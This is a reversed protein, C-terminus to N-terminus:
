LSLCFTKGMTIVQRWAALYKPCIRTFINKQKNKTMVCAWTSLGRREGTDLRWNQGSVWYLLCWEYLLVYARPYFFGWLRRYGLPSPCPECRRSEGRKESLNIVQWCNAGISGCYRGITSALFLLHVRVEDKAIPIPRVARRSCHPGVRLLVWRHVGQHRHSQSTNRIYNKIPILFVRIRQWGLSLAIM